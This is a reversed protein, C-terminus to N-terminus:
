RLMGIRRPPWFRFFAKGRLNELPVGRWVRSDYSNASNDGFVYIEGPPVTKPGEFLTGNLRSTYEIDRVPNGKPPPLGDILLHGWPSLPPHRIEIEDGPLGVVRKVFEPKDPSYIIKPTKFVVIDGYYPGRLMYIFKNVFIRDGEQLTPYMSSSPIAYARVIFSSIVLYMLLAEVAVSAWEWGTPYRRIGRLCVRAFGSRRM